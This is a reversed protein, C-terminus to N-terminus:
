SAWQTRMREYEPNWYNTRKMWIPNTGTYLIIQANTQRSFYYSIEEPTILPSQGLQDTKGSYGQASQQMSIQNSTQTMTMSNGLRDSMYKLTLLDNLGFAQIISANGLFSEWRDGYISKAQTFDQWFSWIRVGYGALLGIATELQQMHGLVHIEDLIFIGKPDERPVPKTEEVVALLRNLFLRFFRAHMHLLGAPLCLYISSGGYKWTKLDVTRGDGKLMDAMPKSSLFELNTRTTSLVSGQEEDGMTQLAGAMEAPVGNAREANQEELMEDLLADFGDAGQNILKRVTILNRPLTESTAVWAIFGKLVMRANNNWHNNADKATAYVLADAISACYDVFMPSDPDLGSMPNFEARYDHAVNAKGFPDLVYVEQGLGGDPVGRGKGRREATLSANEGKPDLVLVSGRYKALNPLIASVGKGSRSGAVTVLHRDDDCCIVGGQRDEGLLLADPSDAFKANQNLGEPARWLMRPPTDKESLQRPLGRPLDEFEITIIRDRNAVADGM